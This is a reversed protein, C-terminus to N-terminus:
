VAQEEEIKNAPKRTKKIARNKIKKYLVPLLKKNKVAIYLIVSICIISFTCELILKSRPGLINEHQLMKDIIVSLDKAIEKEDFDLVDNTNSTFVEDNTPNPSDIEDSKPLFSLEQSLLPLFKNLFVIYFYVFKRKVIM